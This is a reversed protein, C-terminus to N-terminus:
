GVAETHSVKDLEPGSVKYFFIECKLYLFSEWRRRNWPHKGKWRDWMSPSESSPSLAPYGNRQEEKPPAKGGGGNGVLAM